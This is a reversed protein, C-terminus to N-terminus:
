PAHGDTKRLRPSASPQAGDGLWYLQLCKQLKLRARYLMVNINNSSLQTQQCIEGTSLGFHERMMFVQAQIGPLGNLCRQLIQWFERNSLLQEPTGVDAPTEGTAWHGDKRFLIAELEDGEPDETEIAIERAQRRYRHRLADTIKHKLIAFVWTKLAAEGRFAESKDLAAVFADQVVDEALASDGLQHTAYSLMQPRLNALQQAANM